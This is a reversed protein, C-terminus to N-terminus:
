PLRGQQSQMHLALDAHPFTYIAFAGYGAQGCNFCARDGSEGADDGYSAGYSVSHQCLYCTLVFSSYFFQCM